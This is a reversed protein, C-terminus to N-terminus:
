RRELRPGKWAVAPRKALPFRLSIYQRGRATLVFGREENFAYSLALLGHMRLEELTNGIEGQPEELLREVDSLSVAAQGCEALIGILAIAAPSLASGEGDASRGALFREPGTRLGGFYRDLPCPENGCGHEAACARQPMDLAVYDRCRPCYELPSDFM